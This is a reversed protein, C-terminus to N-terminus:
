VCVVSGKAFGNFNTASVISYAGMDDVALIDGVSLSEFPLKIRKGGANWEDISDCTPGYLRVSLHEGAHQLLARVTVNSHARDFMECSIAGYVGDDVFLWREGSREVKALISVCLTGASSVIARGPEALLRLGKLDGFTDIRRRIKACYKELQYLQTRAYAPFGGGINLIGIEIGREKLQDVYSSCRFLPEDFDSPNLTSSGVHFSLGIQDVGLECARHAIKLVESVSDCGYKNGLDHESSEGYAAVRIHLEQVVAGASKLRDLEEISDVVYRVVGARSSADIDRPRRIPQTNLLQAAGFGSELAASVELEGCVDISLGLSHIIKLVVPHSNAKAAYCLEDARLGNAIKAVAEEVVGSDIVLLPTELRLCESHLRMNRDNTSRPM